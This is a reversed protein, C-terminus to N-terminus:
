QRAQLREAQRYLNVFVRPDDFVGKAVWSERTPAPLKAFAIGAMKVAEEIPVGLMRSVIARGEAKYLQRAPDSKLAAYKDSADLVLEAMGKAMPAPLEMAAFAGRLERDLAPLDGDISRGTYVGSLDYESASVGALSREYAQENSSPTDAAPPKSISDVTPAVLPVPPASSTAAVKAVTAEIMAPSLGYGAATARFADAAATDGAPTNSPDFM